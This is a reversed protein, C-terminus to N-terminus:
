GSPEYGDLPRRRADPQHQCGAPLLEDIRSAPHESIRTLVDAIYDLSVKPRQRSGRWFAPGRVSVRRARALQRFATRNIAQELSHKSYLQLDNDGRAV